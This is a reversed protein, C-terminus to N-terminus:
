GAQKDELSKTINQIEPGLEQLRSSIALINREFEKLVGEIEVKRKEITQVGEKVTKELAVGAGIEVILRKKDLVEGFAYAESGLPFLVDSNSKEIEDISNLTTQLEVLKSVVMERQKLLSDLRSELIRYTLIKEQLEKETM